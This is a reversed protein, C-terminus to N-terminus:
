IALIFTVSKLPYSVIIIIYDVVFDLGIKLLPYKKFRNM